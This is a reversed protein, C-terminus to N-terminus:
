QPLSASARSSIRCIQGSRWCSGIRAESAAAASAARRRQGDRCRWCPQPLTVSTLCSDRSSRRVPVCGAKDNRSRGSICASNDRSPGPAPPRPAPWLRPRLRRATARHPVTRERVVRWTASADATSLWSTERSRGACAFAACPRHRSSGAIKKPPSSGIAHSDDGGGGREDHKYCERSRHSGVCACPPPLRAANGGVSRWREM